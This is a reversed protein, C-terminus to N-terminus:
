DFNGNKPPHGFGKQVVQALFRRVGLVRYFLPKLVGIKSFCNHTVFRGNKYLFVLNM